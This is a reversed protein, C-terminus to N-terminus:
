ASQDDIVRLRSFSFRSLSPLATTKQPGDDTTNDSILATAPYGIARLVSELVLITEDVAL